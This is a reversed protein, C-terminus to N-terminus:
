DVIVISHWHNLFGHEWDSKRCNCTCLIQSTSEWASQLQKNFVIMTMMLSKQSKKTTMALYRYQYQTNTDSSVLVVPYQTNPSKKPITRVRGTASNLVDAHGSQMVSCKFRTVEDYSVCFRLRSLQILLFESGFEHRIMISGLGFLLLM